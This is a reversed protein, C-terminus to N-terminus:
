ETRPSDQCGIVEALKKRGTQVSKPFPHLGPPYLGVPRDVPKPKEYSETKHGIIPNDSFHCPGCAWVINSRRDDRGDSRRKKHCRALGRWDPKNGCIQCKGDAPPAMAALKKNRKTQKESVRRM